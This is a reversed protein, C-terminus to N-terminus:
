TATAPALFAASGQRWEGRAQRQSPKSKEHGRTHSNLTDHYIKLLKQGECRLKM